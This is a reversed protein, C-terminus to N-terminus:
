DCSWQYEESYSEFAPEEVVGQQQFLHRIYEQDEPTLFLEKRYFRYYKNRGFHGLMRNKLEYVQKYPISDFLHKIGWAVHVKKASHFYACARSDSPICAPNIINITTCEKPCHQAAIYRLCEGTKQCQSNLCHAYNYPVLQYNFEDKMM